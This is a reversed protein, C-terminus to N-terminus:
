RADATRRASDCDDAARLLAQAYARADEPTLLCLAPLAYLIQVRQNFERCIPKEGAFYVTVAEVPENPQDPKPM